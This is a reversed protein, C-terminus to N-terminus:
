HLLLVYVFLLYPTKSSNSCKCVNIVTIRLSSVGVYVHVGHEDCMSFPVRHTDQRVVGLGGELWVCECVCLRELVDVHICLVYM